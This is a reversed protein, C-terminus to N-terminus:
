EVVVRSSFGLSQLFAHVPLHGALFSELILQQVDFLLEHLEPAFNFVNQLFFVDKVRGDLLVGRIESDAGRVKM